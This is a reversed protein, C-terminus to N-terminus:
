TPRFTRVEGSGATCQDHKKRLEYRTHSPSREEDRRPRDKAPVPAKDPSSPGRWVSTDSSRRKGVLGDREDTSERLLVRSIAIKANDTLQLREADNDRLRADRAHKAAM